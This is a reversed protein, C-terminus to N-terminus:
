DDANGRTEPWLVFEDLGARRLSRAVAWLYVAHNNHAIIDPEGASLVPPLSQDAGALLRLWGGPLSLAQFQLKPWIADPALHIRDDHAHLVLVRVALQHSGPASVPGLLQRRPKRPDDGASRYAALPFSGSCDKSSISPFGTSDICVAAPPLPRLLPLLNASADIAALMMLLLAGTLALRHRNGALLVLLGFILSPFLLSGLAPWESPSTWGLWFGLYALLLSAPIWVCWRRGPYYTHLGLGLLTLWAPVIGPALGGGDLLGRVALASALVGLWGLARNGSHFFWPTVLWALLLSAIFALSLRSVLWTAVWPLFVSGTDYAAVQLGLAQAPLAFATKGLHSHFLGTFSYAGGQWHYVHATPPVGMERLYTLTLALNLLYGLLLALGFAMLLWRPGRWAYRLRWNALVLFALLYLAAGNSTSYALKGLVFQVVLGAEGGFLLVCALLGAVASALWVPCGATVPM